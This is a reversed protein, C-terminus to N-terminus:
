APEPKTRSTARKRTATLETIERVSVSLGVDALTQKIEAANYGKKTCLEIIQDKLSQLVEAQSMKDQSLDPLGALKERAAELDKQTFTKQKAM